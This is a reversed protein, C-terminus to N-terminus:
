NDDNNDAHSHSKFVEGDKIKQTKPWIHYKTLMYTWKLIDLVERRDANIVVVGLGRVWFGPFWELTRWRIGGCGMMYCTTGVTGYLCM